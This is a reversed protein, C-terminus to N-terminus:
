EFASSRVTGSLTSRRSACSCWSPTNVSASRLKAPPGGIWLADGAMLGVCAFPQSERASDGESGAGTVVVVEGNFKLQQLLARRGSRDAGM